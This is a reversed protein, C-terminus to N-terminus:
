RQNEHKVTQLFRKELESSKHGTWVLCSQQRFRCCNGNRAVIQQRTHVSKLCMREACVSAMATDIAAAKYYLSELPNHWRQRNHYIQEYNINGLQLANLVNSSVITAYVVLRFTGGAGV